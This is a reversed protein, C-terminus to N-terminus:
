FGVGMSVRGRPGVRRAPAVMVPQYVPVAREIVVAPTAPTVAATSQRQVGAIVADSVGSQKLSVIGDPSLDFRGGRDRVAGLIVEQGVGAQSLRILDFNTLAQADYGAQRVADDEAQKERGALNGLVAGTLAGVVAGGGREGLQHGVITGAVAGIA